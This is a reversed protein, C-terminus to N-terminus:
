RLLEGCVEAVRAPTPRFAIRHSLMSTLLASLKPELNPALLAVDIISTAVTHQNGACPHRGLIAELMTLGLSFVDSACTLNREGRYQEASMYGNTGWVLGPGTITEFQLHRAAGFDILVAEREGIRLMINPPKIDRHVVRHKWLEEIATAIDRGVILGLKESVPASIIRDALSGGDIFRWVAFHIEHAGVHPVMCSGHELLEAICPHRVRALVHVERIM